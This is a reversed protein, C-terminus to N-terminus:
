RHDGHSVNYMPSRTNANLQNTKFGGPSSFRQKLDHVPVGKYKHWFRMSIWCATRFRDCHIAFGVFSAKLPTHFMHHEVGLDGAAISQERWILYNWFNALQILEIPSIGISTQSFPQPMWRCHNPLKQEFLKVWHVLPSMMSCFVSIWEKTTMDFRINQMQRHQRLKAQQFTRPIWRWLPFKSRHWWRGLNQCNKKETGPHQCTWVHPNSVDKSASVRYSRSTCISVSVLKMFTDSMPAWFGFLTLRRNKINRM